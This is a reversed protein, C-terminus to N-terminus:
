VSLRKNRYIKNQKKRKTERVKNKSGYTETQSHCNPCLLRLNEVRNNDSNGDIHDLHLALTKNNHIPLQKCIACCNEVDCIELLLKKQKLPHEYEGKLFADVTNKHLQAEFCIRSCYKKNSTEKKCYTCRIM